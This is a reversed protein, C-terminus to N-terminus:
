LDEIYITLGLILSLEFCTHKKSLSKIMYIFNLCFTDYALLNRTVRYFSIDM